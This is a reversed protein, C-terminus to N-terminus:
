SVGAMSGCQGYTFPRTHLLLRGRARVTDGGLTLVELFVADGRQLWNAYLGEFPPAVFQRRARRFRDLDAVSLDSLDDQEVARRTLFYWRLETPQATSVLPESSRVYRDFVAQCAALGAVHAPCVSM